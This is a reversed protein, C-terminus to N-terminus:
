RPSSGSYLGAPGWRERMFEALRAGRVMAGSEEQYQALPWWRQVTEQDLGFPAFRARIVLDPQLGQGDPDSGSLPDILIVLFPEAAPDLVTASEGESILMQKPETIGAIRPAQDPWESVLACTLGAAALHAVRHRRLWRQQGESTARYWVVGWPESGRIHGVSVGMSTARTQYRMDTACWRGVVLMTIVLLVAGGGSYWASRRWIQHRRHCWAKWVLFLLTPIATWWWWAWWPHFQFVGAVVHAMAVAGALTFWADRPGSRSCAPIILNSLVAVLGATVVVGWGAAITLCDNLATGFRGRLSEPLYWADLVLAVNWVGVGQWPQDSILALASRWLTWRSAMSADGRVGEAVRDLVQGGTIVAIVVYLVLWIGALRWPVVYRWGLVAMGAVTALLGARSQTAVSLVMAPILGVIVGAIAVPRWGRRWAAVVIVLFVLTAVALM